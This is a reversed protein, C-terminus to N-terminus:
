HTAYGKGKYGESSVGTIPNLGLEKARVNEADKWEKTLTKPPPSAFQRLAVTMVGAVGVLAMTYAFIKLGDGPKSSPARPGHPGFAVYYAAKKEDLSLEKWDRKQLSELQDHVTAKEEGTMTAWQAEVNSLPIASAARRSSVTSTSSSSSLTADPGVHAASATTTALTRVRTVTSTSHQQLVARRALRLSAQM